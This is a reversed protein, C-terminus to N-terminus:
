GVGNARLWDLCRQWGDRAVAERYSPRFDAHFGHPADPYVIIRSETKGADALANRMTEVTDLPIGTDNEGYLGLVPANLDGAVDAPHAPQNESPEGVLRGYWAVGAGLDPRHAAYLWTIRGGWCFGTVGLKGADGGAEAVAWATMADLDAMIRSDPAQRVVEFIEQFDTKERVGGYREFPDFGVACYGEQAFRRCVDRIYDHLGFIEPAVLVIPRAGADDPRAMYGPVAGDLDWMPEAIRLGDTDTVITSAAVPRVAAAFGMSLAAIGFGRRGMPNTPALAQTDEAWQKDDM